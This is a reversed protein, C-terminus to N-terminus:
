AHSEICKVLLQLVSFSSGASGRRYVGSIFCLFSSLESFLVISRFCRAGNSPRLIPLVVCHLQALLHLAALGSSRSRNRCVSLGEFQQALDINIVVDGAGFRCKLAWQYRWCPASAPACRATILGLSHEPHCGM